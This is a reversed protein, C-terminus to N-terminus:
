KEMEIPIGERKAFEHVWEGLKGKEVATPRYPWPCLFVANPHPHARPWALHITSGLVERLKKQGFGNEALNFDVQLFKKVKTEDTPSGPYRDLFISEPIDLLSAMFLEYANRRWITAQYTFLFSDNLIKYSSSRYTESDAKPGPCPMLRISSVSEDKELIELAEEIASEDIRGGLLFDEQMPFIYKIEEPLRRCAALRSELFFRESEPIELIKVGFEKELAQITKDSSAETVMYTPWKLNQAYRRLLQFHLRLLYFYKPTSNVFYAVDQRDM